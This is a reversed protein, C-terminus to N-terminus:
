WGLKQWLTDLWSWERSAQELLAEVPKARKRYQNLRHQAFLGGGLGMAGWWIQTRDAEQSYALKILGLPTLNASNDRANPNAGSSLLLEVIKTHLAGAAHHLPTFGDADKANPDAGAAVLATIDEPNDSHQIASHLPTLGKADKANPDAGVALLTTIRATLRAIAEPKGRGKYQTAVHLPTYGKKATKANPDAGAALLATVAMATNAFHLPTTGNDTKANVDAGAALLAAIVEDAVPNWTGTQAAGHLPTYGTAGKANPNPDAGAAVLATIAAASSAFNLPPEGNNTKANVDAGAALLAAIIAAAAAPNGSTRPQAAFHLPTYGQAQKANPDAGAALLAAVAEADNGRVADLLPDDAAHAALALTLALAALVKMM